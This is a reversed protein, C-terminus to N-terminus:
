DDCLAVDPEYVCGAVASCVELTCPDADDCDAMEPGPQCVGGGCWDGLTCADGDECDGDVPLEVCGEAPDCAAEACAGEAPDCALTAAPVCAGTACTEGLTCADGDDCESGDGWAELTPGAPDNADCTACPGVPAGHATCAGDIMCFGALLTTACLGDVCADTTCILGDNCDLPPGAACAGDADCADGVTCPDGDDCPTGEACVPPGADEVVDLAPEQTDPVADEVPSGDEADPGIDLGPVADAGSAADDPDDTAGSGGADSKGTVVEPDGEDVDAAAGGTEGSVADVGPYIGVDDGASGGDGAGGSDSCAGIFLAMTALLVVLAAERGRVTLTSTTNM